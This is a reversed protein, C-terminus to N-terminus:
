KNSAMPKWHQLLSIPYIIWTCRKLNKLFLLSHSDLDERGVVCDFVGCGRCVRRETGVWEELTTDLKSLEIYTFTPIARIM